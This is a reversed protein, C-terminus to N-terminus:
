VGTAGIYSPLKQNPCNALDINWIKQIQEVKERIKSVSMEFGPGPFLVSGKGREGGKKPSNSLCIYNFTKQQKRFEFFSIM